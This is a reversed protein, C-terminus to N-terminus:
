EDYDDDEEIDYVTHIKLGDRIIKSIDDDDIRRKMGMEFKAKYELLAELFDEDTIGWMDHGDLATSLHRGLSLSPYIAKLEELVKLISYFKPKKRM